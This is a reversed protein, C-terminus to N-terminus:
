YIVSNLWQSYLHDTNSDNYVKKFVAMLTDLGITSMSKYLLVTNDRRWFDFFNLLLQLFIAPLMLTDFKHGLSRPNFDQCHM